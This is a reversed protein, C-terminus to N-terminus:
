SLSDWVLWALAVWWALILGAAIGLLARQRNGPKEVEQRSWELEVFANESKSPNAVSKNQGDNSGDRQSPTPRKKSKRRNM